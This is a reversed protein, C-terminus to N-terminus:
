EKEKIPTSLTYSNAAAYHPLVSSEFKFIKHYVGAADQLEPPYDFGHSTGFERPNEEAIDFVRRAFANGAEKFVEILFPGEMDAWVVTGVQPLEQDHWFYVPQVGAFAGDKWASDVYEKLAKTTMAEGERDRYSNSTVSFMYRSGDAARVVSKGSKLVRQTITQPTTYMKNNAPIPVGSPDYVQCWGRPNAAVNVATCQNPAIFMKCMACMQNPVPSKPVYGVDSPSYKQITQQQAMDLGSGYPAAKASLPKGTASVLQKGKPQHPKLKDRLEQKRDDGVPLKGIRASIKGVAQRREAPTAQVGQGHPANADGSLADVAQSVRRPTDIPLKRKGPIAYDSPDTPRDDKKGPHRRANSLAIAVAQDHPKGANIEAAINASVTKPSKGPKLPM